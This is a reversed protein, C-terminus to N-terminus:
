NFSKDQSVTASYSRKLKIGDSKGALHLTAIEWEKSEQQDSGWQLKPM